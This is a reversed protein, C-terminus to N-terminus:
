EEIYDGLRVEPTGEHPEGPPGRKEGEAPTTGGSGKTWTSDM